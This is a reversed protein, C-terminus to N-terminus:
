KKFRSHYFFCFWFYSTAKKTWTSQSYGIWPVRRPRSAVEDGLFIVVELRNRRTGSDCVCSSSGPAALSVSFGVVGSRKSSALCEEGTATTQLPEIAPPPFFVHRWNLFCGSKINFATLTKWMLFPFEGRKVCSEEQSARRRTMIPPFLM